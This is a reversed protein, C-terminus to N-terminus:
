CIFSHFGNGRWKDIRDILDCDRSIYIESDREGDHVNREEKRTEVEKKRGEDMKGNM